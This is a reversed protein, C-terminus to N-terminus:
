GEARARCLLTRTRRPMDAGARAMSKFLTRFPITNAFHELREWRPQFYLGSVWVEKFGARRLSTSLSETTFEMAHRPNLVRGERRRANPTSLIVWGHRPAVAERAQELFTSLEHSSLHEVVEFSAVVDPGDDLLGVLVRRVESLVRQPEDFHELSDCSVVLDFSSSAFPVQQADGYVAGPGQPRLDLNAYRYGRRLLLSRLQGRGGGLDLAWGSGTPIKPALLRKDTSV